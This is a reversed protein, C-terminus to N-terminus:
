GEKGVQRQEWTKVAKALIMRALSSVTRFQESAMQRVADAEETPMNIHITERKSMVGKYQKLCCM